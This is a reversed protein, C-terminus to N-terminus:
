PHITGGLLTCRGDWLINTGLCLPIRIVAKCNRILRREKRRGALFKAMTENWGDTQQVANSNRCPVSFLAVRPKDMM